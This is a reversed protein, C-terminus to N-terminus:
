SCIGAKNYKPKFKSIYAREVIDLEFERLDTALIAYHNWNEQEHTQLRRHINLSRGIYVLEDGLFLFYIGRYPPAREAWLARIEDIEMLSSAASRCKPGVRSEPFSDTVRKGSRMLRAQSKQGLVYAHNQANLITEAIFRRLDERHM